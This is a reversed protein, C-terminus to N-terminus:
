ADSPDLVELNRFYSRYFGRDRTALRDAQILAHAAILFDSTLRTRPGGSRRYERWKQGALVAAEISLPSFELGVRDMTETAKEKSPFHASAEAWVVDCAVLKGELSSRRLMTRSQLVFAPDGGFVDLLVNADVATIM